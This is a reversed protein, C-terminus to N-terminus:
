FARDNNDVLVDEGAGVQLVTSGNVVVSADDYVEFDAYGLNCNNLTLTATCISLGEVYWSHDNNSCDITCNNMTTDTYARFMAYTGNGEITTNNMEISSLTGAFAAYGSIKSNNFVLKGKGGDFHLSWAANPNNFSCNDFVLTGNAYNWKSKGEFKANKVTVTKGTPVNSNTFAYDTNVLTAGQADVIVQEADDAFAAKLVDDMEDVSSVTMVKIASGYETGKDGWQENYAAWGAEVTDFGETQIAYASVYMTPQGHTNINWNLDTVVGKEVHYVNGEPDIDVHDDMYVKTIVPHTTTEGSKLPTEYLVTYVNYLIDTDDIKQDKAVNWNGNLKWNWLGDAVAETTYDIHLVNKSADDDYLVSPIAITAWVWADTKGTNTITPKKEIDKGPLITAGQEFSENLDISVNGVTFVNAESDRDTLYALTGTTAMAVSLLLAAVLVLKRNM